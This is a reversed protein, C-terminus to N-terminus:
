LLSLLIRADDRCAERTENGVDPAPEHTRPADGFVPGLESLILACSSVDRDAEAFRYSSVGIVYSSDLKRKQSEEVSRPHPLIWMRWESPAWGLWGM